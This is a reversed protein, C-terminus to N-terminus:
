DSAHACQRHSLQQRIHTRQAIGVGRSVYVFERMCYLEAFFFPRRTKANRNVVVASVYLYLEIDDAGLSIAM